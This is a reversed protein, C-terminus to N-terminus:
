NTGSNMSIALFGPTSRPHSSIIWMELSEWSGGGSCLPRTQTGGPSPGEPLSAATTQSASAATQLSFCANLRYVCTQDGWQQRKDQICIVSAQFRIYQFRIYESSPHFPQCRPLPTPPILFPWIIGIRGVSLAGGQLHCLLGQLPSHLCATCSFSSRGLFFTDLSPLGWPQLSM